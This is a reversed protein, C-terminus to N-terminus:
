GEINISWYWVLQKALTLLYLIFTYVFNTVWPQLDYNFPSTPIFIGNYYDATSSCFHIKNHSMFTVSAACTNTIYISFKSINTLITLPIQIVFSIHNIYRSPSSNLFSDGRKFHLCTACPVHKWSVTAPQGILCQLRNSRVCCRLPFLNCSYKWYTLCTTAVTFPLLFLSISLLPLEGCSIEALYLHNIVCSFDMITKPSASNIM